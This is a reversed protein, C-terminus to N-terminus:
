YNTIILHEANRNNRNKFSVMYKKDFHCINFGKNTYLDTILSTNKIVLMWRANCKNELYNALRCHDSKDFVNNAYTSFESDYPPDLFIFDDNHPNCINLFAEFDCNYIETKQLLEKLESSKLYDIKKTFNKNNYAIGGYPVNFHNNANYRFMAGYAFNRIFLFIATRFDKSIKYESHNYIHRYHMYFASKFATEINNLVDIDSLIGKKQELVRMRQIKRLFNVKIESIFNEINCNFLTSFMGNFDQSHRLIFAYIVNKVDEIDTRGIRYDNYVDIFFQRNGTILLTLLKWNHNIADLIEFFDTNDSSLRNYLDILEDSKDNIFYRDANVAAYVAGGGVFPEYYNKFCTPLKPMIYKLESEKGGAWKIIPELKNDAQM